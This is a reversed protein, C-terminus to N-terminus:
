ECFLKNKSHKSIGEKKRTEAMKKRNLREVEAASQKKLDGKKNYRDFSM